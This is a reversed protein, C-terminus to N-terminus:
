REAKKELEFMRDICSRAGKMTQEDLNVIQEDTPNKLATLVDKIMIKKMYPCLACTGVIKTDKMEVNLRDFIGCETALMFTGGQRDKVYDVMQSTSGVFDVEKVVSPSCEPHALIEIGDYDDRLAKIKEPTFEEHVICVGDWLILKKSVLPEVNQGMLKDPVFIVEDQPMAEIVKVVNSSTCTADCEAKVAATTNIYCVVGANPHKARLARVDEATISEALSCGAIAPVIVEKNPNLLKATEAMFHVSCFIIKDADTKSALVSLGYSDGVYDAIGYMIDPTQYSHALIIANQEKKLAAVELTMPAYLDCDDKTWGVNKLSAFLRDSEQQLAEQTFM